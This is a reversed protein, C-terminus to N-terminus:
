SLCTDAYLSRLSMLAKRPEMGEVGVTGEFARLM